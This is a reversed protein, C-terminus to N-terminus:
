QVAKKRAIAAKLDEKSANVDAASYAAPGAARKLGSIANLRNQKKQEIVGTDDGPQPFYQQRANAFEEKSVVAGSERRLVANIFNRQAQEVKQDNGSLLLKNAIAGTIGDGAAQKAMLKTPSYNGGIKDLVNNAEETRSAYLATIKATDTAAKAGSGVQEKKLIQGTSPDTTIQYSTQNGNADTEQVTSIHLNKDGGTMKKLMSDYLAARGPDGAALAADRAKQMADLQVVPSSPNMGTNEALVNGQADKVQEGPSVSFTKGILANEAAQQPALMGLMGQLEQPSYGAATGGALLGYQNVRGTPTGAEPQPIPQQMQPPPQLPTAGAGVGGLGAPMMGQQSQEALARPVAQGANPTTQMYDAPNFNQQAEIQKQKAAQLAAAQQMQAMQAQQMYAQSITTGIPTRRDSSLLNLGALLQPNQLLQSISDNFDAM